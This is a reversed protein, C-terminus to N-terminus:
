HLRSPLKAPGAFSGDLNCQHFACKRIYQLVNINQTYKLKASNTTFGFDGFIHTKDATRPSDALHGSTFRAPRLAVYGSSLYFIHIALKLLHLRPPLKAPGAFSGDLNCQHFACKRIYQLVNINPPPPMKNPAITPLFLFDGFIHFRSICNLILFSHAYVTLINIDMVDFNNAPFILSVLDAVIFM